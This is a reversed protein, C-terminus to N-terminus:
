SVKNPFNTVVWNEGEIESNNRAIKQVKDCLVNM